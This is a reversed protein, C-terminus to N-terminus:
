FLIIMHFPCKLGRVSLFFVFVSETASHGGFVSSFHKGRTTGFASGPQGYRVFKLLLKEGGPYCSRIAVADGSHFAKYAM